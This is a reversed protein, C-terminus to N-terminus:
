PKPPGQTHGFLALSVAERVAQMSAPKELFSERAWLQMREKFLQDAYGTLYLVALDPDQRRLTRALQDGTMTPMMLDTILLDFVENASAAIAAAGDHVTVTDYGAARLTREVFTAVPPEDDVILIRYTRTPAPM